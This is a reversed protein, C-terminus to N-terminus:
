AGAGWGCDSGRVMARDWQDGQMWKSGERPERIKQLQGQSETVAKEFFRGHSGM